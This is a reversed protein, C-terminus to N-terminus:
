GLRSGFAANTWDSELHSKNATSSANTTNYPPDTVVADVSGAALTPLIELCDGCYLICRGDGFVDVKTDESM